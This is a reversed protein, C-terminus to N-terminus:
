SQKEELLATFKEIATIMVATESDTLRSVLSRINERKMAYVRDAIEHGAPSLELRIVRRDHEDPRRELLGRRHLTDVTQTVASQTLFLRGALEGTTQAPKQSLMMLIELQTRTLQLGDGLHERASRM